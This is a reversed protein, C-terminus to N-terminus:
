CLRVCVLALLQSTSSPLTPIQPNLSRFTALVFRRLQASPAALLKHGRVSHHQHLVGNIDDALDPTILVTACSLIVVVALAITLVRMMARLTCGGTKRKDLTHLDGTSIELLNRATRIGIPKRLRYDTWAPGSGVTNQM